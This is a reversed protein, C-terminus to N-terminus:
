ERQAAAARRARPVRRPLEHDGAQISERPIRHVDGDERRDAALREPKMRSLDGPIREEDRDREIQHHHEVLLWRELRREALLVGLISLADPAPELEQWLRAAQCAAGRPIDHRSM